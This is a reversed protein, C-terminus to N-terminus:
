NKIKNIAFFEQQLNFRAQSELRNFFYETHYVRTRALFSALVKKRGFCYDAQPLWSYEQRIAQSYIQYETQSAGLISLDADLFIQSDYDEFNTQHTQTKLILQKVSQIICDDIKLHTLVQEAYVASKEENIQAQSDYIVDHFWIALEIVSFNKAEDKMLNAVTLLQEIHQLNHYYRTSNSYATVLDNFIPEALFLDVKLSQLLNDWNDKLKELKM